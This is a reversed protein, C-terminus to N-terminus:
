PAKRREIVVEGGSGPRSKKPWGFTGQPTTLGCEYKFKGDNKVKHPKSGSVEGPPEFPSEDGFDIRLSGLPSDWRITDGLKAKIKKASKPATGPKGAFFPKLRGSEDFVILINFATM